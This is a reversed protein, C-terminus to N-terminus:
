VFMKQLFAKKTQKLADLEQQHLAIVEDLQKFFNGIQVQEEISTPISTKKTLLESKTIGKISTGQVKHLEKQLLTYLSYVGFWKDVKLNSLSLFDQSTAYEDEMLAIKGVGVRTVIAISDRSVLKTASNKIGSETIKKRALVGSVQHENLDSSQIWPIEGNWFEKTNTRPTGGGFTYESFDNVESEKWEGVFGPFRLEPVAEAEKPFMKQLFGQKTQKLTELEQQHLSISEGLQKFFSGISEQEEMKLPIALETELFDNASINLLGHNRAGETARTTVEKHWKNTDYYSLLFDSNIKFPKFTIYLSSLAGMDYNDLRKIAGWPYDRSYSKNYAFEGRELLYYNSMDKSAVQKNFYTVQDVLGYQASITLPLQTKLEKNKRTVREVIHKLPQMKWEDTYNAFRIEPQKRNKM